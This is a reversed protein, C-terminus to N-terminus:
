TNHQSDQIICYWLDLGQWIQGKSPMNEKSNVCPKVRSGVVRTSSLTSWPRTQARVCEMSGWFGSMWTRSMCIPASYSMPLTNPESDRRICRWPKSVGRLLIKGTSPIKGKSNLHTRVGNAWLEKPHSHIGLDQRHVCINWWLSEFSGSTWSRSSHIAAVFVCGAQVM